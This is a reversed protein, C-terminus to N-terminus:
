TSEGARFATSPRIPRREVAPPNPVGNKPAPSCSRTSPVDSTRCRPWAASDAPIVDSAAAAAKAPM